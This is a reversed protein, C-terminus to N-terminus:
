SICWFNCDIYGRVLKYFIASTNKQGVVQDHIHLLPLGM